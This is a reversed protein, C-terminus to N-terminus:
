PLPLDNQIVVLTSSVRPELWPPGDVQGYLNHARAQKKPRQALGLGAGPQVEIPVPHCKLRCAPMRWAALNQKVEGYAFILQGFHNADHTICTARGRTVIAVTDAEVEFRVVV